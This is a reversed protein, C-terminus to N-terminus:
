ENYGYNFFSALKLVYQIRKIESHKNAAVHKVSLVFYFAITTSLNHTGIISQKGTTRKM